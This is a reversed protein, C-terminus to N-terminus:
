AHGLLNAIAFDRVQGSDPPQMQRPSIPPTTLQNPRSPDFGGGGGRAQLSRFQQLAATQHTQSGVEGAHM